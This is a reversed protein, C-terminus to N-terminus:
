KTAELKRLREEIEDLRKAYTKNLNNNYYYTVELTPKIEDACTIMNDGESMQRLENYAIQQSETFPTVVETAKKYEITVPTGATYQESLWNKFNAITNFNSNRFCIRDLTGNRINFSMDEIENFATLNNTITSIKSNKLHSSILANKDTFLVFVGKSTNISANASSGEVANWSETGDLILTGKTQHIGEVDIYDGEHLIQGEELPFAIAESVTQDENEKTFNLAIVNQIELVNDPSPTGTAQITKGKIKLHANCACANEAIIQESQLTESISEIGGVDGTNGKEGKLSELWETETGEFGNQIAIEYASDGKIGEVLKDVKEKYKDTFDNTSM